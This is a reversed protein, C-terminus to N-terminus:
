KQFLGMVDSERLIVVDTGPIDIKTGSYQPFIVRDGVKVDMPRIRGKKDLHGRGAAVVVGELNGSVDAVTDPIFLGGATKREREALQVILRDDLPTLFNNFNIKKAPAMPKMVTKSLTAKAPTPAKGKTMKKAPTAKKAASKKVAAKKVVAKKLMPKKKAIAKKAPIKKAAAKKPAAKKKKGQAM